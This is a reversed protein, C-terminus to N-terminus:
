IDDMTLGEGLSLNNSRRSLLMVHPAGSKKEPFFSLPLLSQILM